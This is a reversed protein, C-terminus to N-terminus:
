LFFFFFACSIATITAVHVRYLSLSPSLMECLYTYFPKERSIIAEEMPLMSPSAVDPYYVSILM